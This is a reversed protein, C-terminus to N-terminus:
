PEAVEVSATPAFTRSIDVSSCAQAYENSNVCAGNTWSGMGLTGPIHLILKATASGGSPIDALSLTLTGDGNDQWPDANIAPFFNAGAPMTDILQVGTATVNEQNTITFSYLVYDQAPDNWEATKEIALGSVPGGNECTKKILDELKALLDAHYRILDEFTSIAKIIDQTEVAPDLNKTLYYYDHLLSEQRSLLDEFSYIFEEHTGIGCNGPLESFGEVCWTADLLIYFSEYLEKERLLLDGFSALFEVQANDPYIPDWQEEDGLMGSFSEHLVTQRRLLDEFSALFMANDAVPFENSYQKLLEEFQTLLVEQSRLLEEFSGVANTQTWRGDETPPCYPELPPVQAASIGVFISAILLILWASSTRPGTKISM